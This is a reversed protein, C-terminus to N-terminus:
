PLPVLELTLKGEKERLVVAEADSHKDVQVAGFLADVIEVGDPGKPKTTDRRIANKNVKADDNTAMLAMDVRAGWFQSPGFLTKHFRQTQTVVWNKGGSRYTFMDLPRNGSGLEIISLGRITAGPQVADLPFKVVPTCVFSGVVYQKGGEEYPVLSQIPAKTEWKNHAVHYTEASYVNATAGHEIPTPLAYIKSSFEENSQGAALVRDGAFAVDTIRSVKGPIAVRAYKLKAFDIPALDGKTSVTFISHSKGDKSQAALYIRGSAPNVALDVISVADAAVKLQQAIAGAVDEVRASLKVTPSADGTEIAVIAGGNEAVLLLGGPGFALAGIGKLAPDGTQAKTISTGTKAAAHVATFGAFLALAVLGAVISIPKTKMPKRLPLFDVLVENEQLM